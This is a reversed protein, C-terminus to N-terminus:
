NSNREYYQNREAEDFVIDRDSRLASAEIARHLCHNDARQSCPRAVRNHSGDIMAIGLGWWPSTIPVRLSNWTYNYYVM